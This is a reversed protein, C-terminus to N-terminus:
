SGNAAGPFVIQLRPITIRRQKLRKEIIEWGGEVRQQVFLKKLRHINTNVIQENEAKLDFVLDPLHYWGRESEPLTAAADDKIRQEALKLLTSYLIKEGLEITEGGNLLDLHVHQKDLSVRFRLAITSLSPPAKAKYTGVNPSDPPVELRWSQDGATITADHVAQQRVGDATEVFWREDADAVISVQVNTENPLELLGNEAARIEGTASCQAVVVPGRDDLLQWRETEPGFQVIDDRNLAVREKDLVRKENVWTGNTSAFDHLEWREGTWSISAHMMSAAHDTLIVANKRVRGVVSYAALVVTKRTALHLITGM